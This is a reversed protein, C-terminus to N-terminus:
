KIVLAMTILAVGTMVVATLTEVTFDFLAEGQNQSQLAKGEYLTSSGRPSSSM